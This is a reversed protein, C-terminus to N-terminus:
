NIRYYSYTSVYVCIGMYTQRWVHICIHMCVWTHLSIIYTCVYMYVHRGGYMSLYICKQICVCIYTQLYGYRFVNIYCICIHMCTCAYTSGYTCIYTYHRNIDKWIFVHGHMYTIHIYTHIYMYTDIYIHIYVYMNQRIHSNQSMCICMYAWAHTGVSM